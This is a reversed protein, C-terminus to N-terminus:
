SPAPCRQARLHKAPLEILSGDWDADGTRV